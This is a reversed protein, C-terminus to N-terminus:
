ETKVGMLELLVDRGKLRRFIVSKSIDYCIVAGKLTENNNQNDIVTRM